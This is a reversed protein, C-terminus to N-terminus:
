GPDLTDRTTKDRTCGLASHIGLAGWLETADRRRVLNRLNEQVRPTSPTGISERESEASLANVIANMQQCDSELTARSSLMQPDKGIKNLRHVNL